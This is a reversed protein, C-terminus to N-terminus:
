TPGAQGTSIASVMTLMLKELLKVRLEAVERKTEARLARREIEAYAAATIPLCCTGVDSSERHLSIYGVIESGKPEEEFVYTLEKESM